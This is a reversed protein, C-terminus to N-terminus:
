FAFGPSESSRMKAASASGVRRAISARRESCCSRGTLVSASGNAMDSGATIFCRSTSDPAPSMVRLLVPRVTAHRREAPGISSASAHSM